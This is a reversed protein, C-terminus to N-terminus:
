AGVARPYREAWASPGESPGASPGRPIWPAPAAVFEWAATRGARDAIAAPAAECAACLAPPDADVADRDGARLARTCRRCAGTVPGRGALARLVEDGGVAHRLVHTPVDAMRWYAHRVVAALVVEDLGTLLAAVDAALADDDEGHVAQLHLRRIVTSVDM